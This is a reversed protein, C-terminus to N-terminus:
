KCESDCTCCDHGCSMNAWHDASQSLALEEESIFNLKGGSDSQRVDIGDIQSTKGKGVPITM